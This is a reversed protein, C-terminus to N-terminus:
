NRTIDTIFFEIQCNIPKVFYGDFNDMLNWFLTIFEVDYVQFFTHTRNFLKVKNFWGGDGQFDITWDATSDAYERMDKSMGFDAIALKCGTGACMRKFNDVFWPLQWEINSDCGTLIIM